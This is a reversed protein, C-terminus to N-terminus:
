WEDDGSFTTRDDLLLRQVAKDEYRLFKAVGELKAVAIERQQDLTWNCRTEPAEQTIFSLVWGIDGALGLRTSM